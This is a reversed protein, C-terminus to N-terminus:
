YRGGVSRAFGQSSANPGNPGVSANTNAIGKFMYYKGDNTRVKLFSATFGGASASGNTAYGSSHQVSRKWSTAGNPADIETDSIGYGFARDGHTDTSAEAGAAEQHRVRFSGDRSDDAFALMAQAEQPAIPSYANSSGGYGGALAATSVLSMSLACAFRRAIKAYSM